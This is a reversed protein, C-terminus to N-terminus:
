LKEALRSPDQAEAASIAPHLERDRPMELVDAFGELEDGDVEVIVEQTLRAVFGGAVCQGYCPLGEVQIEDLQHRVREVDDEGVGRQMMEEVQLVDEVLEDGPKPGAAPEDHVVQDTLNLHQEPFV